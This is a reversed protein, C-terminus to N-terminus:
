CSNNKLAKNLQRYKLKSMILLCLIRNLLKNWKSRHIKICYCVMFYVVNGCVLM